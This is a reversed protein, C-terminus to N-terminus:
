GTLIYNNTFNNSVWTDIFRLRRLSVTTSNASTVLGRMNTNNQTLLEGTFFVGTANAIQLIFDQEGFAATTNDVIRIFPPYTYNNGPNINVFGSIQGITV